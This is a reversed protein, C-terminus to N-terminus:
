AQEKEDPTPPKPLKPLPAEPAVEVLPIHIGRPANVIHAVTRSIADADLQLWHRMQGFRAGVEAVEIAISMEWTNAIESTTPGPRLVSARVGTGELEMQVVRAFGELGFKAAVYSSLLPRPNPVVDSSIFVIDGRQRELMPPVFARVLRQAGLVNTDLDAAFTETPLDWSRGPSMGGANVIVAEVPGLAAEVTKRCAEVSATDTVDLAVAIAEGGAARIAAVVEECREVRRAAVAVPHGAAGETAAALEKAIAAGIGASAGAVLVPRREPHDGLRRRSKPVVLPEGLPEGLPVDAPVDVM